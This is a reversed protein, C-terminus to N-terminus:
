VQDEWSNSEVKYKRIFSVYKRREDHVERYWRQRRYEVAQMEYVLAYIEHDNGVSIERLVRDSDRYPLKTWCYSYPKNNDREKNKNVKNLKRM